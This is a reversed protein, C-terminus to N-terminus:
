RSHSPVSTVHAPAADDIFEISELLKIVQPLTTEKPWMLYAVSELSGCLALQQHPICFYFARTRRKEDGNVGDQTIGGTWDDGHLPYFTTHHEKSGIAGPSPDLVWGKDTMKIGARDSLSLTALVLMRTVRIATM